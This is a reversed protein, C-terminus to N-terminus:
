EIPLTSLVNIHGGTPTPTWDYSIILRKIHSYHEIRRAVLEALVQMLDERSDEPTSEYIGQVLKEQEEEPSLPINWAVVALALLNRVANESGACMPEYPEIFEM